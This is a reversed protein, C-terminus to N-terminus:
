LGIVVPALDGPFGDPTEEESVKHVPTRNQRVWALREVNTKLGRPMRHIPVQGTLLWEAADRDGAALELAETQCVRYETSTPGLEGINVTDDQGAIVAKLYDELPRYTYDWDSFERNGFIDCASVSAAEREIYDALDNDRFSSLLMHPFGPEALQDLAAEFEELKKRRHQLSKEGVIVFLLPALQAIKSVSVKYRRAVLEFANRVAADVRVNLQYSTEEGGTITRVIGAPMANEGTLDSPDIGLGKALRKLTVGHPASIGGAELRSIQRESVRSARALGARTLGRLTRLRKLRDAFATTEVQLDTTMGRGRPPFEIVQAMTAAGETCIENHPAYASRLSAVIDSLECTHALDSVAM